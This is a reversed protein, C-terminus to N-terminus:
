VSKEYSENLHLCSVMNRLVTTSNIVFQHWNSCCISNANSDFPCRLWFIVVVVVNHINIINYVKLSDFHPIYLAQIVLKVSNSHSQYPVNLGGLRNIVNSKTEMMYMLQINGIRLRNFFKVPSICQGCEILFPSFSSLCFHAFPILLPLLYLLLFIDCSLIFNAPFWKM